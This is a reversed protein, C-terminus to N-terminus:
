KAFKHFNTKTCTISYHHVICYAVKVNTPVEFHYLLQSIKKNVGKPHILIGAKGSDM